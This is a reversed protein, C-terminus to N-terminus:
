WATWGGDVLLNQGTMYSSADSCLFVIAGKLDEPQGIRGLPIRQELRAVLEAPASPSPFAGPSLCNVRVRAKAWYVALHRTLQIIGGKLAQYAAPSACTIGDYVEPYSAVSGYMSGILVISGEGRRNVVHNRMLRSLLFYGTLNRLQRDFQAATLSSWDQGVPEHGNNILVDVRGAANVAAAFGSEISAEEMHDIEVAHHTAGIRPLKGVAGWATAVRRSSAIVSAGAEALAEAMRWGLHGAAGTVLAVKGRLSLLNLVHKTEASM